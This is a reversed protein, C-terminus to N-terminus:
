INRKEKDIKIKKKIKGLQMCVSIIKKHKKGLIQDVEFAVNKFSAKMFHVLVYEVSNIDKKCKYCFERIPAAISFVWIPSVIIIKKYSKLDININEIPMPWKHMGYRGCWWFGSTNEIKEKPNLMIIDAKQREAEEYAIKKTYGMRSFYVVLIDKNKGINQYDNINFKFQEQMYFVYTMYGTLFQILGIIFYSISLVNTPLIIFQVTIWLMLTLGFITGLIIGIKKNKLLLCVATLNSIGNIILLLIGPILYNQFLINSFPLVKFYPLISHMQLINGTPDIFMCTSGFVAGIGVFLCWFILFRKTIKYRM